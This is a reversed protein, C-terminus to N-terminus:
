QDNITLQQEHKRGRLIHTHTHTRTRTHSRIISKYSLLIAPAVMIM